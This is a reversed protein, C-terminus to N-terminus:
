RLSTFLYGHQSPLIKYYANKFEKSDVDELYITSKNNISIVKKAIDSEMTNIICYTIIPIITSLITALFPFILSHNYFKPNNKKIFIRIFYKYM